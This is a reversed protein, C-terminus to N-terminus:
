CSGAFPLAVFCLFTHSSFFPFIPIQGSGLMMCCCMAPMSGIDLSAPRLSTIEGFYCTTHLVQLIGDAKAYAFSERHVASM